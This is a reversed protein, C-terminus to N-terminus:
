TPGRGEARAEWEAYLRALAGEVEDYQQQYVRARSENAFFDPTSMVQAFRQKREELEVIEQEIAALGAGGPARDQEGRKGAVCGRSAPRVPPAQAPAAASSGGDAGARPARTVADGAVSGHSRAWLYEPYTGPYERLGGNGVAVIHSALVDLFHRDHSVFVVTGTYSRLAEFLVEKSPIDLHNTPEDLLLLNSPRVLLCALALRNVEGGSLVGVRKDVADGTFLFAGLLSRVQPIYDNPARATVTELVTRRPDLRFGQEQAFFAPMVRYGAERRGSDAEEQGALIRMLTSKGAGNPGVLAVRQGRILKLDVGSFVTLRDYSKEVGRLEMVIKGSHPCEPYRITIAKRYPQPPTVRDLKALRKIRSQVLSARRKDSRYTDIFRQIRRIEEQQRDYTKQRRALRKEREALYLSYNGAYEELSHAVIETVRSVTVDLFYRDHSVIAFAHPYNRLYDELWERAELDLHNTPEDLLLVQPRQLLLRALAARMQWGGSLDAVRRDFDARRFGLGTLVRQISREIDEAGLIGLRELLEAYRITLREIDDDGPRVRELRREITEQEQQLQLVEGFARRAEERVTGEGVLFGTQALYGIRLSKPVDLRGEDPSELGAIIRLLTTKGSGNEGILAVRDRPGVFWDVDCLIPQRGFWKSIQSLKVM